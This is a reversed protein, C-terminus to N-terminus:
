LIIQEVKMLFPAPRNTLGGVPRTDPMVGGVCSFKFHKIMTAFFLFNEMRALSEGICRRKGIGFPINREDVRFKGDQMFREPRFVEPDKWYEQDMHVSYINTLYVANKPIEHNKIITPISFKRPLPLILINCFRWVENLVAETYHCKDKDSINVLERGKSVENIEERVKTQIDPNRMMMLIAYILSNSTTESGATFLDFCTFLLAEKSLAKSLKGAILFKDIFDRPNDEDMTEEHSEITSVIFKRCEALGRYVGNYISRYPPFYKLFPFSGLPKGHVKTGLIVFMDVFKYLNNMREEDYDFREGATINWVVNVAAKNLLNDIDVVGNKTNDIRKKIADVINKCEELIMGESNKKGFGLDRLTRLTFRRVEKYDEGSNFIIGNMKSGGLYVEGIVGLDPRDLNTDLNNLEQM